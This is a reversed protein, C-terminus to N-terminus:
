KDGSIADIGQFQYKETCNSCSRSAFQALFQRKIVHQTERNFYTKMLVSMQIQLKFLTVAQNISPESLYWAEYWVEKKIKSRALVFFMETYFNKKSFLNCKIRFKHLPTGKTFSWTKDLIPNEAGATHYVPGLCSSSRKSPKQSSTHQQDILPLAAARLSLEPDFPASKGSLPPPDPM